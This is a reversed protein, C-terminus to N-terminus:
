KQGKTNDIISRLMDGVMAAMADLWTILQAQHRHAQYLRVIQGTIITALLLIIIILDQTTM